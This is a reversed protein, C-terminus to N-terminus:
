WLVSPLVWAAASTQNRAPLDSLEGSATSSAIAASASLLGGIASATLGGGNAAGTASVGTSSATAGAATSSAFASRRVRTLLRACAMLWNLSFPALWSIWFVDLRSRDPLRSALPEVTDRAAALM